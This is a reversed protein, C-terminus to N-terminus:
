LSKYVCFHSDKGVCLVGGGGLYSVFESLIFKILYRLSTRIISYNCGVHIYKRQCCNIFYVPVLSRINERYLYTHHLFLHHCSLPRPANISRRVAEGTM